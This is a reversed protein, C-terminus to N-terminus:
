PYRGESDSFIYREYGLKMQEAIRAEDPLGSCQGKYRNGWTGYEYAQVPNCFKKKGQEFGVVYEAYEEEQVMERDFRQQLDSTTQMQLGKAGQKYGIEQWSSNSPTEACAVLLCAFVTIVFLRM